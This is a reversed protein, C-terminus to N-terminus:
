LANRGDGNLVISVMHHQSKPVKAERILSETIKSRDFHEIAYESTRVPIEQIMESRTYDILSWVFEIIKKGLETLNYGSEKEGVILNTNKLERLHYGFRGADTSPELNMMQMIQTFTLPSQRSLLQLIEIRISSSLASLVKKPIEEFTM